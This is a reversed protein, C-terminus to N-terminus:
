VSKELLSWGNRDSESGAIQKWGDALAFQLTDHNKNSVWNCDDLFIFRSVFRSLAKFEDLSENKGCAGDLVLLDISAPITPIFDITRGNFFTIRPEHKYLEVCENFRETDPEFSIIWQEPRTLALYLCYTSGLGRWAGSEVMVDCQCAAEMLAEGAPTDYRLQAYEPNSAKEWRPEDRLKM